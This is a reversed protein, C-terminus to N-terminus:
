SNSAAMLFGRKQSRAGPGGLRSTRARHLCSSSLARAPRRRGGEQEEPRQGGGAGVGSRGTAGSLGAPLGLGSLCASPLFIFLRRKIAATMMATMMAKM